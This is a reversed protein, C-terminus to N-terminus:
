KRRPQGAEEQGMVFFSLYEQLVSSLRLENEEASVTFTPIYQQRKGNYCRTACSTNVVSLSCGSAHVLTSVIRSNEL